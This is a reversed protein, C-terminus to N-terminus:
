CFNVNKAVKKNIKSSQLQKNCSNLTLFVTIVFEMLRDRACGLRYMADIMPIHEQLYKIRQKDAM